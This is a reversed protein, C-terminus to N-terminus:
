QQIFVASKKVKDGEVRLWVYWHFSSFFSDLFQLSLRLPRRSRSSSNLSFFSSPSSPLLSPLLIHWKLSLFVAHKDHIALWYDRSANPYLCSLYKFGKYDNLQRIIVDTFRQGRRPRWSTLSFEKHPLACSMVKGNSLSDDIGHGCNTGDKDNLKFKRWRQGTLNSKASRQFSRSM